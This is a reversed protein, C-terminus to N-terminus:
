YSFRTAGAYPTATYYSFMAEFDLAVKTQAAGNRNKLVKLEMPRKDLGRVSGVHAKNAAMNNDTAVDNLGAVQLGLLVDCGYEIGGSEKFSEFEVPANYGARNLSAIALIPVRHTASLVKLASVVKDMKTKDSDRPDEGQLIQLYDIVVFPVRGTTAIHKEVRERIEKVGVKGTGTVIWLNRAQEKYAEVAQKLAEKQAPNHDAWKTYTSINRATLASSEVSTLSRTLRSLSKAILEDEGQELSVVIVDRARSAAVNDAIQLALTTKGLSSGAGLVYLGPQLGGDLKEDLVSIGTSFVESPDQSKVRELFGDLGAGVSAWELSRAPDGAVEVANEVAKRFSEQDLGALEGPDKVEQRADVYSWLSLLNEKELKAKLRNAGDRGEKDYDLAEVVECTPFEQLVKAGRNVGQVGGLALVNHEHVAFPLADGAGEVIFVPKGPEISKLLPDKGAVNGVPKFWRIPANEALARANWYTNKAYPIVLAPSAPAKGWAPNWASALVSSDWVGLRLARAQDPTIGRGQLYSVALPYSEIPLAQCQTIWPSFDTKPEEEVPKPATPLSRSAVFKGVQDPATRDEVIRVGYRNSLERAAEGRELHTTAMHLDVIDGSEGCAFCTWLEKKVNFAPTGNKGTGSDCLPCIYNNAGRGPQLNEQAYTELHAKLSHFDYSM